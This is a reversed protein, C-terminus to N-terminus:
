PRLRRAWASDVLSAMRAPISPGLGFVDLAVAALVSVIHAPLGAEGALLEVHDTGNEVLVGADALDCLAGADGALREIADFSILRV